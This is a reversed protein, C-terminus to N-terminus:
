ETKKKKAIFPIRNSYAIFLDEEGDNLRKNLDEKVKKLHKLQSSTLDNKFYFENEDIISSKNHFVWDVHDASEFIVKLPRKKAKNYKKGLRYTRVNNLDFPLDLHSDTFIKKVTEFDTNSANVSDDLNFILINKERNVREKFESYVNDNISDFKDEFSDMKEEVKVIRDEMGNLRDNVSSVNVSLNDLKRIVHDVILTWLPKLNDDIGSSLEQLKSETDDSDLNVDLQKKCCTNETNRNNLGVRQGCSKHYYKDCTNCKMAIDVNIDKKKCAYCETGSM